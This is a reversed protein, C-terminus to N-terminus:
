HFWRAYSASYSVASNRYAKCFAPMGVYIGFAQTSKTLLSKAGLVSGKAMHVGGLVMADSGIFVYEDLEIPRNRGAFHPHNVDHDATLLKVYPSISVNDGIRIGGRNDIRCFQNITSNIGISFDRSSNFKCGLHVSSGAGIDFNMIYKYYSLRIFHFPIYAIIFNCVWIRIEPFIHKMNM